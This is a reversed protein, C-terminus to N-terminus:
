RIMQARSEEEEFYQSNLNASAQGALVEIGKRVSGVITALEEELGRLSRLAYADADTHRERM